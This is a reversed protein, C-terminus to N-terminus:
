ASSPMRSLTADRPSPSTYLLCAKGHALVLSVGVTSIFLTLIVYRFPRWNPGNPNNWDVYGFYRLDYCFHFIVMLVIALGRVADVWLLRKNVSPM